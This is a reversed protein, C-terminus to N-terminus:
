EYSAEKIKGYVERIQLNLEGEDGNNYIIYDSRDIYFEDSPQANIRNEAEERLLNDREIIRQLRVERDALVSVMIQCLDEIESGIIVAGDIAAIEAGSEGLESLILRRIYKHTVANLCKLKNADSFVIGGLKKRNLSGDANIVDSGFKNKIEELCPEGKEVIKRATKDAAIVNIGMRRFVNSM